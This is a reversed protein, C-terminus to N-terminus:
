GRSAFLLAFFGILAVTAAVLLAAVLWIRETAATENMGASDPEIGDGFDHGCAACRRYWQPRILDDCDDCKLLVNAFDAPDQMEALLFDTRSVDCVPCRASRRQGCHPCVPWDSWDTLPEAEMSDLDDADHSTRRDFEEALARAQAADQQAVVIRAAATWGLPLEGGGLQIADNVVSAAIGEEELLGKLLYAQQTSAASYIVTPTTQRTM